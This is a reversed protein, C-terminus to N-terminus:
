VLGLRIRGEFHIALQSIVQGWNWKPTTWRKSVDSSVLYLLKFLSDDSPFVSRNKTVKRMQRHVNEIINTTYIIKRIPESYKFYTSLTGWNNKWSNIVVPYRKEWKDALLNLNELALEETPAQYVPKLDRLFEKQYKSSIYKLSNRIQHVICTQIETKPFISKIADPFGKLGDISAILIDQVGRNQLDTLVSLWFTSSENEGIYIGLIDKIGDSNIGLCVYAAKSVIKGDKRVKFHIADFFIIPYVDHLPRSQWEKASDIIKDTIKSIMSPSIEMGSYMQELHLSIERTTMGKGYLSIISEELKSDIGEYKPIFKPQYTGERDRPVDIEVKGASTKISKKYSGNRRNESPGEKQRFSYGLHDELEGKLITEVTSKVLNQIIGNEAFLDDLNKLTSLNQSQKETNM